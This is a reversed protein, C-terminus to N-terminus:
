ATRRTDTCSASASRPAVVVFARRGGRGRRGRDRRVAELGSRRHLPGRAHDGHARHGHGPRAAPLRTRRAGAGAGAPPRDPAPRPRRRTAELVFAALSVILLVKALESPQFRFYPLEIWRHSGRAATGFLFVVLISTIMASYIGVRLERFRSYDIRSVAFMLAVGAMGYLSQRFVFFLPQGPIDDQTAMGLTFCSFAILGVAAALMVGDLYPLSFREGISVRRSPVTLPRAAEMRELTPPRGSMGPRDWEHDAGRDAPVTNIHFYEELMRAAVPAASDAGFGGREITVVIVIKPHNAPAMAVFWSQDPIPYGQNTVGREATGTKGIVDFPFDGFVKYSTGGEEMAARRLGERITNLTTDSIDLQRKPPPQIEELAEGTVSEVSLGLHPTVVEGGNALASYAVAMQLPDAQLDGQGM